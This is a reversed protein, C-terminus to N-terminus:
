YVVVKTGFGKHHWNEDNVEPLSWLYLWKADENRMNVCGSSMTIGYNQHWYTGHFAVGTELEFFSVWPVGPLVYAELDDTLTGGGM